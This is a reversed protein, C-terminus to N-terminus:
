PKEVKDPRGSPGHCGSCTTPLPKYRTFSVGGRTERRHCAECALRAHAGDLHYTSDRAHDFKTAKLNETTHCRECSTARGAAAFQGQHPDRHCGECAQPVGAFRLTGTPRGGETSRHCGSCSVRAHSGALAFRTQGHDFTVERWSDVRHCTECGGKAVFRALEGRHPDRHCDVCRTSAFRFRMPANGTAPSARLSRSGRPRAGDLPRHCADCAVALHAGALPYATRAHEDPGFRAPRFGQVDHCSECRGQDPRRALQGEHADAHCDTCRDHKLRLPRGPVHCKECAVSAHRGALPYATRNHDFGATVASRWSSTSHCTSCSRGLRGKHPDEHCAACDRGAVGRFVRYSAARNAPDPKRVAHCKECATVAHRGTLPWSTKAHDFGPAPKWAVQNHCEACARGKFQGRHEDKHCSACDTALGMFSRTRHCQECSLQAHRGALVLGTLAHDFARRGAKGWWVLEYELGQHEVHCTKCDRYEPRAHLGRGAGIREQLPKHCALCKAASVGKDPDHCELCRTSGELKAHARSLPGPSIQARAVAPLLVLGLAVALAARPKRIPCLLTRLSQHLGIRRSVVVGSNKDVPEQGSPDGVRALRSSGAAGLRYVM